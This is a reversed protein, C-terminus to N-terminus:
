QEGATGIAPPMTGALSKLFALLDAKEAGTLDLKFLLKSKPGEGGGDDYFEIVRELGTLSGDHMFHSQGSVSRLSPTKFACRDAPDHTITFRGWDSDARQGPLLGLRHYKNDTFNPGNHCQSCAARGIFLILGRKQQDTLARKDGQEYRDFASDPTVLTREFAALSRAMDPLNIEHGFAERFERRYEPIKQLRALLAKRGPVGMENEALLPVLAQEELSKARGDWFQGRNYAANLLSPTRRRLTVGRVGVALARDDSYGKNSDHCTACSM